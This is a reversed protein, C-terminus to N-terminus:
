IPNVLSSGNHVVHIIKISINSNNNEWMQVHNFRLTWAQQRPTKEMMLPVIPLIGLNLHSYRPAHQM